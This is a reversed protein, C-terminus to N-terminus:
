RVRRRVLAWAYGYSVGFARATDAITEGSEIV